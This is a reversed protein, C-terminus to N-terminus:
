EVSVTKLYLLDMANIELGKLYPKILMNQAAIFLPMIPVEEETLIRQAEDYLQQRTQPDKEVAAKQILRDYRENKWHTNNNGSTSTFLNMFNDPDPYDAGWGLRFLAPTDTTLRKLYVKWEQNDLDIKVGLNREWQAQLNEAILNNEPNTNFVATIEPFGKGGPFGAESLLKQAEKPNFSLGIHPNYGPMGKPIWSSTPIEGGKLIKPFETRDIAMSFAKRVRPDNFPAKTVNFGYYYGRLFPFNLYEPSKEFYPIAIPPLQVLDLGGTEYLTLATTSEGVVFFTVEDLVPKQDYYRDNPELIVKYEHDWRKLKFPGNVVMNKPDTWHEGFRDLIDRRLPFTATFTTISPFFVIPHRLDVRLTREDLAKVGVKGPNKIKGSNFEAANVVDFLFYAYEAATKPDLLRKWSYEFDYATVPKWDSWFVNERISFTYRRGDESVMWGEAVAPIPNLDADYSTLGDMLNEIIRISVNDTALSWDLTPPESSIAMRFVQKTSSPHSAKESKNFGNTGIWFLLGLVLSIGILIKVKGM